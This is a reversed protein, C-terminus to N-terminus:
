TRIRRVIEADYMRAKTAQVTEDKLDGDARACGALVWAQNAKRRLKELGWNTIDEDDM